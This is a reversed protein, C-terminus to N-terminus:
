YLSNIFILKIVDLLLYM